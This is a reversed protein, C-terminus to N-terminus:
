TWAKRSAIEALSLHDGCGVEACPFALRVLEAIANETKEALTDDGEDLALQHVDRLRALEKEACHICVNTM